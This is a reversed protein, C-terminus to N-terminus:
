SSGAFFESPSMIDDIVFITEEDIIFIAEEHTSEDYVEDDKAAVLAEEHEALFDFVEKRNWLKPPFKPFERDDGNPFGLFGNKNFIELPSKSLSVSESDSLFVSFSNEEYQKTSSCKGLSSKENQLGVSFGSKRDVRSKCQPLPAKKSTCNEINENEFWKERLRGGVLMDLCEFSVSFDMSFGPGTLIGFKSSDSSSESAQVQPKSEKPTITKTKSKEFNM